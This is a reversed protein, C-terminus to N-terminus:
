HIFLKQRTHAFGTPPSKSGNPVNSTVRDSRCSLISVYVSTNSSKFFIITSVKLIDGCVMLSNNKCLLYAFDVLSPRMNPLGTMVLIQPTYTKVHEEINSLQQVTILATKYVQAQGSSGWNVDSSNLFYSNNKV